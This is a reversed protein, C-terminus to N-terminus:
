NASLRQQQKLIRDGFFVVKEADYIGTVGPKGKGNRIGAIRAIAKVINGEAFNMGAAEIFDNVELSYPEEATTPDEVFFKYYDVSGGTLAVPETTFHVTACAAVASPQEEVILEVEECEMYSRFGNGNVRESFMSSSPCDGSCRDRYIIQGIDFTNASDYLVRVATNQSLDRLEQGTLKM